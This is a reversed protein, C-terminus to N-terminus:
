KQKDLYEKHSDSIAFYLNLFKDSGILYKNKIVFDTILNRTNRWMKFASEQQEILICSNIVAQCKLLAAVTMYPPLQKSKRKFISFM